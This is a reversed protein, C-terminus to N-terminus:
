VTLPYRPLRKNLEAGGGGAGAIGVGELCPSWSRCSRVLFWPGDACEPEIPSPAWAPGTEMVIAIGGVLGLSADRHRPKHWAVVGAAPRSAQHLTVTRASWGTKWASARVTSLKGLTMLYARTTLAM